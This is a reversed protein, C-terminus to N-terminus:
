VVSEDTSCRGPTSRRKDHDSSATVRPANAAPGFALAVYRRTHLSRFAGICHLRGCQSVVASALNPRLEARACYTTSRHSPSRLAQEESPMSWGVETRVVVCCVGVGTPSHLPWHPPWGEPQAFVVHRV